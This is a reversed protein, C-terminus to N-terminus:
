KKGLLYNIFLTVLFTSRTARARQMFVEITRADPQQPIPLDFPGLFTFPLDHAGQLFDHAGLFLHGFGAHSGLHGFFHGLFAHLGHGFFFHGFRQGLFRPQQGFPLPLPM